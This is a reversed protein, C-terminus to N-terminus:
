IALRRPGESGTDEVVLIPMPDGDTGEDLRTEIVRLSRKPLPISDGPRWNSVLTKFTPPDAPTGDVLELKFVFGLAM